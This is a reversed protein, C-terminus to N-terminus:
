QGSFKSWGTAWNNAAVDSRGFAGRFAPTDFTFAPTTASCFVSLCGTGVGSLAPSNQAPVANFVPMFFGDSGDATRVFPSKLRIASWNTGTFLTTGTPTTLATAPNAGAFAAATSTYAHFLNNNFCSLASTYNAQSATGDLEVGRSFGLIISNQMVYASNRRVHAGRGYLGTGTPPMTTSNAKAANPLGIITLNSFVPRTQPTNTNGASNNDSEIGNSQSFDARTTDSLGLAYQVSGRFGNDTDFMDDLADVAILHKANVTGGFFEFADDNSKYVEVFDITTGCGVGALTLGNIENNASLAFGAYEIRVYKLIGSNDQDNSGGYDASAPANDPIGEVRATTPGSATATNITAGGLIIVGAWDGSQATGQPQRYSTFVIPCTPNGEANIQAGRTIVLGGGPVGTTGALGRITTGAEITLVTPSASGTPTTVYVLGSLQYITDNSLTRNSTIVGSLTVTGVPSGTPCPVAALLGATLSRDKNEHADKNCAAAGALLGACVVLIPFKNKM